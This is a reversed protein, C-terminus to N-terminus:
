EALWALALPKLVLSSDADNRMTKAKVSEVVFGFPAFPDIWFWFLAWPTLAEGVTLKTAVLVGYRGSAALRDRGPGTTTCRVDVPGPRGARWASRVWSLSQGRTTFPSSSMAVGVVAALLCSAVRGARSRARRRASLRSTM